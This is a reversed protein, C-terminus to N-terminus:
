CNQTDQTLKSKLVSYRRELRHYLWRIVRNLFRVECSGLLQPRPGLPAIHKVLLHKSLHEKFEAIQTRTALTAFDDGHRLVSVDKVLRKYLCPNFLGINYDLKEMTRKVTRILASHQTRRKWVICSQAHCNRIPM